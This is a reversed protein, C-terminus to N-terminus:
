PNWTFPKMCTPGHITKSQKMLVAAENMNMWGPGSSKAFIYCSPLCTGTPIQFGSENHLHFSKLLNGSVVHLKFYKEAQWDIDIKCILCYGYFQFICEMDCHFWQRGHHMFTDWCRPIQATMIVFYCNEFMYVFLIWM